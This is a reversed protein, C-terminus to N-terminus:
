PCPGYALGCDVKGQCTNLRDCMGTDASPDKCTALLTRCHSEDDPTPSAGGLLNKVENNCADRATGAPQCGCIRSALDECATGCGLAALAVLAAHAAATRLTPM